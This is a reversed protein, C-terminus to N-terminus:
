TFLGGSSLRRACSVITEALLKTRDPLSRKIMYERDSHDHEGIPGLGDLVPTGAASIENADSAGSRFEERVTIGLGGAAEEVIRFLGQNGPTAAMLPRSSVKALVASTEPADTRAAIAELRARLDAIGEETTYRVDVSAAAHEPVSNPTTGGEVRGVNLTTGPVVGNLGEIDIVKRALALVASSKGQRADAAHGARGRVRLELGLRGKRGTVAEGKMGGCELVLAAASRQAQEAIVARSRPSGIEEDPNFVVRVPIHALIGAANLAKLAYVASVLGGKMDIVGPGYAREEDERYERFFSDAPFVTDMHGVVLVAKESDAPGTRLVLVDGLDEVPIREAKLPLDAVARLLADAVLDVGPKNRTGSNIDVLERLLGFMGGQNADIYEGPLSAM